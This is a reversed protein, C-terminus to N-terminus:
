LKPGCQGREPKVDDCLEDHSQQKRKLGDVVDVRCMVM